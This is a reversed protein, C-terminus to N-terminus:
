YFRQVLKEQDEKFYCRTPMNTVKPRLGNFIQCLGPPRRIGPIFVPEHTGARHEPEKAKTEPILNRTTPIEM